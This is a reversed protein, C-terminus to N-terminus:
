TDRPKSDRPPHEDFELPPTRIRARRARKPKVPGLALDDRRPKHHELDERTVNGIVSVRFAFPRPETEWIRVLWDWKRLILRLLSLSSLHPPLLILAAKNDILLRREYRPELMQSNRSLIIRNASAVEPIWKADPTGPTIKTNKEVVWVDANVLRLARGLRAGTDEDIFLKM